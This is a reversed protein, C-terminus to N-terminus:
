LTGLGDVTISGGELVIPARRSDIALLDCLAAAVADDSQWTSFKEGWANFRFDVGLRSGEEGTVFIPGSDRLWADDLPIEVVTIEESCRARAEAAFAPDAAMTVPEFESIANAVAAYNVFAQELLGFERWRGCPWAMLTREHRSSEAPMSLAETRPTTESAM